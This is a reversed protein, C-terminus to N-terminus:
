DVVVTKKNGYDSFQVQIVRGSDSDSGDPYKIAM